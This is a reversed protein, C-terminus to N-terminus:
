LDALYEILIQIYYISRLSGCPFGLCLCFLYVFMMIAVGCDFGVLLVCCLWFSVLHCSVFIGWFSHFRV